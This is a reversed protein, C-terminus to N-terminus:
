DGPGTRAHLAALAEEHRLGNSYIATRSDLRKGGLHDSFRGGAEEVIISPAAHDWIDGAFWVCLDLEGEAVRNQHSWPRDIPIGDALRELLQQHRPGLAHHAPLCALREPKPERQQSVSIRIGSSRYTPGTFAGAGRVAWWRRGQAPSSSIGLEIAGNVELALLTGWTERGAAFFSTGDIGDAIWRRGTTGVHEGVEEGLFGDEPCVGRLLTLMANEAAVDAETVPTGDEKTRSPTGSPSWWSMTETDASDVMRFALEIDAGM